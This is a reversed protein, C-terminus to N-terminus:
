GLLTVLLHNDFVQPDDEPQARVLPGYTYGGMIVIDEGLVERVAQYVSRPRAWFLHAWAWDVLLLALRPQAGSFRQLAERAARRAAELCEAASGVALHARQGRHLPLTLRISGDTEVALPAYWAAEEGEEVLLPYLRALERLPPRVWDREARGLWTALRRAALEGDLRYVREARSETVETLLGSPAWGTAWAASVEVGRLAMLAAGGQGGRGGACLRARVMYATNGVMAGYIPGRHRGLWHMWRLMRPTQADMLTWLVADAWDTLDREEARELAPFWLAEAQVGEGALLAVELARAPRGDPGWIQRLTGGWIPVDGLLVRLTPLMAPLDYEQSALMIVAQPQQELRGLGKHVLKVAAEPSRDWHTSEKVVQLGM